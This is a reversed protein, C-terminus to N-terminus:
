EDFANEALAPPAGFLKGEEHRDLVVNTREPDFHLAIVAMLDYIRSLQIMIPPLWEDGVPGTQTQEDFQM